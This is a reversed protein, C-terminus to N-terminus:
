AVLRRDIALQLRDVTGVEDLLGEAFHAMRQCTREDPRGVARFARGRRHM